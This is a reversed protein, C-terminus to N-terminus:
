RDRAGPPRYAAPRDSDEKVDLQGIKQEIEKERCLCRTTLSMEYISMKNSLCKSSIKCIVCKSNTVNQLYLIKYKNCKTSEYNQVYLM